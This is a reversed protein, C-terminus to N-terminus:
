QSPSPSPNQQSPPLPQPLDIIVPVDVPQLTNPKPKPPAVEAEGARALRRHVRLERLRQRIEQRNIETNAARSQEIELRLAEAAQVRLAAHVKLQRQRLRLEDRQAYYDQLKAEDEKRAKEEEAALREQEQRLRELEAVGANMMAVGLQGFLETKDDARVLELPPGAFSIEMPPREVGDRIALTIAVDLSGQGLEAVTRVDADADATARKVPALAAVGNVMTISGAVDGLVLPGGGALAAFAATLGTSDTASAAAKKFAAVDIRLFELAKIDYSGSGSLGALTGGPSRGRGTFAVEIVGTGSAATEGSALRMQRALDVPLTVKGTIARRGEEGDPRSAVEIFANRGADDKGFITIRLEEPTASIGAQVDRAAYIDSIRLEKPTIWVEGTLGFPLGAAFATEASPQQGNWDLLAAALVDTATVSGTAINATVKGTADLSGDFSLESEGLRGSFSGAFPEGAANKLSGDLVLIGSPLAAAPLGIAALLPLANTSRLTAKGDIVPGAGIAGNFGLNAGFAQVQLDTIFGKALSGSGTMVLRAPSQDTGVPKFGILQGLSAGDPAKIEAAGKVDMDSLVAAGALAGTASFDLVGTTGAVDIAMEPVGGAGPKISFTGKMATKGLAAAWAPEGDKPLAGILRLLGRPDEAAVEVGVSGDSGQGTDIVLGSADLRAGGVSGIRVTRLDLGNAGSALDVTINEAEVGNMSLKDSQVSLRLDPASPSPLLLPWLTAIGSTQAPPMYRDADLLDTKVRLDISKRGGLAVTLDGGGRVGDLEYQTKTFRLRSPRLSLDTQLKMRGRDGKWLRDVGAKGEPWLWGTLLRLDSSEAALTGTFEGGDGGPLFVGEILAASRGPLDARFRRVTLKEKDGALALEVNELNEGGAKLSTVKISGDVSVADPILALLDNALVFGEGERLLARTRAGAIEDLDIRPSELEASATIAAGLSLRASGSMMTGGATVDQPAIQIDDLAISEFGADIKATLVLPRLQGEADAKGDGSSAPEVRVTGNLRDGQNEGDFSYVLGSSDAPAVRLGFRFPLDQKWSSTNLSIDLSRGGYLSLSRMRWPGRVDPASLSANFDDLQVVGGRRRDILRVTGNRLTIRDLKVRGLLDNASLNDAPAFRWNGTGAANREFSLRPREIDISDVQISGSLLGALAMKVEIRDATAFQSEALGPLNAITVEEATLRPWPFLRATIPGEIRVDRGTLKRGYSELDARYGNWDIVFPAALAALVAVVLILGFYLVPSKWLKM